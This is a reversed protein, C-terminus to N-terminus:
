CRDDMECLTTTVYRKQVDRISGGGVAYCRYAGSGTVKLDVAAGDCNDGAYSIVEGWDEERAAMPQAPGAIAMTAFFSVLITITSFQM